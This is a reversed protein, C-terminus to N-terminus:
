YGSPYTEPFEGEQWLSTIDIPEVARTEDIHIIADFQQPVITYFYHSQRETHPHYIVGIARQLRKKNLIDAVEKHDKFILLFQPIETEHFFTEYSEKLAHRVHKREVPGGWYSAASVTGTYTSFGLSFSASGYHERVLQGLNLEGQNAMQTSRADGLHSNHAWVIVKPQQQKKLAHAMIAELTQMMHIDRINWSSIDSEFLSRYYHEANAAVRANQEAYFFEEALIPQGKTYEYEHSKLDLLQAIVQHKCSSNPYLSTLYGYTQPDNSVVDFCSYRQRAQAAASPDVKELYSIVEKMSSHLSYVDLGYFGVKSFGVKSGLATSPLSQNYERLWTIFNLIDVNRWMWAPFRKFDSLAQIGLSDGNLDQVYRNVRYTDPWDGEIAVLTFGKEQILRKTIEARKQYFEHTGHSAEGLLVVSADGIAELLPDYDEPISRLAFLYKNLIEKDKDM